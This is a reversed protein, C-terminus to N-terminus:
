GRWPAGSAKLGFRAIVADCPTAVTPLAEVLMWCTPGMAVKCVGEPGIYHGCWKCMWRRVKREDQFDMWGGHPKWTGVARCVPCRLRDRMGILRTCDWFQHVLPNVAM